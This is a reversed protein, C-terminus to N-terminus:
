ITVMTAGYGYERFSADQVRCQKYHTRLEKLLANRLVGEGKGHIFVIHCGHKKLHANMTDRFVKIQYELIDRPELGVMTDLLEHAHLDVEVIANRDQKRTARKEAGSIRPQPETPLQEEPTQMAERLEDADVFMPRVARDDKLIDYTLAPTNFFVSPQFAHLKYFKTGDIRLNVSYTPKPFFVKDRKFALTQITIREWEELRNHLLEELYVKTNPAIEGEHRVQCAKGEYNLLTYHIYYNCDNVLYVEFPTDSIEKVRKPVFALCLNLENAGRREQAMPKYTLEQDAIDTEEEEEEDDNAALANKVSTPTPKDENTKGKKKGDVVKAINYDNTEVAVVETVLTPIEFGDEDAVLVIDKGQFGTITGGGVDNLFRVKDGIKVM